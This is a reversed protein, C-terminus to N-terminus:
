AVEPNRTEDRIAQLATGLLEHARTLRHFLLPADVGHDIMNTQAEYTIAEAKKVLARIENANM